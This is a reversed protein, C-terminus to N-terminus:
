GGEKRRGGNRGEWGLCSGPFTFSGEEGVKPFASGGGADEKFSKLFLALYSPFPLFYSSPPRCVIISSAIGELHFVCLTIQMAQDLLILTCPLWLLTSSDKQECKETWGEGGRGGESGGERGGEGGGGGM